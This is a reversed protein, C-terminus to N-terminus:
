KYNGNINAHMQNINSLFPNVSFREKLMTDRADDSFLFEGALLQSYGSQKAENVLERSYYGYPFALAKVEKGTVRELFQKSRIMEEKALGSDIQSLDNHYYGHSGITVWKSASMLKIEQESMQLWYDKEVREKYSAFAKIMDSKQEFGTCRLVDGLLRSASSSKYKGDWGKGFEEGSFSIKGPGYQYAISLLDNWLIDYGAERIGTIFFAAPVEYQELLPLVYKFNNAFGDDFTLCINFKGNSFRQQFHDDLSVINFYKKYFRLQEEFSKRTLFLTNFQLPKNKCIGHYVLIRSGKTKKVFQRNLGLHWAADKPLGKLRKRIHYYKIFLGQM